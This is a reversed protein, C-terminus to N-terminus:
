LLKVPSATPQFHEQALRVLPTVHAAAIRRHIMIIQAVHTSIRM